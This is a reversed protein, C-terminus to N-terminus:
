RGEKFTLAALLTTTRPVFAADTNILKERHVVIESVCYGVAGLGIRNFLQTHLISHEVEFMVGHEQHSFPEGRYFFNQRVQDNGILITNTMFSRNWDAKEEWSACTHTRRCPM